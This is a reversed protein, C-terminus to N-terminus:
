SGNQVRPYKNCNQLMFGNAKRPNYFQANTM